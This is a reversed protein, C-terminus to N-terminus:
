SCVMQCTAAVSGAGVMLMWIKVVLPDHSVSAKGSEPAYIDAAPGCNKFSSLSCVRLRRDDSIM